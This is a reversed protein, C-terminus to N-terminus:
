AGAVVAAQTTVVLALWSASLLAVLDDEKLDHPWAEVAADMRLFRDLRVRAVTVGAEDDLTWRTGWFSEADWAYRRGDALHVTGQGRWGLPLSARVVGAEDKVEITWRLFGRVEARWARGGVDLDADFGLGRQELRAVTREGEVLDFRRAMWGRHRWHLRRADM